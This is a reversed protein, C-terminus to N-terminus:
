LSACLSAFVFDAIVSSIWRSFTSLGCDVTTFLYEPLAPTRAGVLPPVFFLAFWRFRSPKAIFDWRHNATWGRHRASFGM